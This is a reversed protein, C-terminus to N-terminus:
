GLISKKELINYFTLKPCTAKCDELSVAGFINEFLYCRTRFDQVSYFNGHGFDKESM